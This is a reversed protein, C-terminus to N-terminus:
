IGQRPQRRYLVVSVSIGLRQIRAQLEPNPRVLVLTLAKLTAVSESPKASTRSRIMAALVGFDSDEVFDTELRELRPFIPEDEKEKGHDKTVTLLNLFDIPSRPETFELGIDTHSKLSLNTVHTVCAKMHSFEHDHSRSLVLLTLSKLRCGLEPIMESFRRVVDAYAPIYLDELAPLELCRLIDDSQSRRLLYEFPLKFRKLQALRVRTTPIPGLKTNLEYHLLNPVKRLVALEEEAECPAMVRISTIQQWPLLLFYILNPSSLGLHRLKPAQQFVRVLATETPQDNFFWALQLTELLPVSGTPLLTKLASVLPPGINLTVRWWRPSQHILLELLRLEAVADTQRLGSDFLIALPANGSRELVAELMEAKPRREGQITIESWFTPSELVTARWIRCVRGYAWIPHMPDMVDAFAKLSPISRIIIEFIIESPIRRIPSLVKKHLKQVKIIDQVQMYVEGSYWVHSPNLGKDIFDLKCQIEHIVAQIEQEESPTPQENTALLRQVLPSLANNIDM